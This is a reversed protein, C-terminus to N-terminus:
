RDNIPDLGLELFNVFEQLLLERSAVRHVIQGTLDHGEFDLHFPDHGIDLAFLRCPHAGVLREEVLEVVQRFFLIFLVFRQAADHELHHPRDQGKLKQNRRAHRDPGHDMFLDPRLTTSFGM